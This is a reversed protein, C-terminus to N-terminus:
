PAPEASLRVWLTFVVLVAVVLGLAGIVARQSNRM